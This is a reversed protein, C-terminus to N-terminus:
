IDKFYNKYEISKHNEYKHSNLYLQCCIKNKM